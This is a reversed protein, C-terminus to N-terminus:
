SRRGGAVERRRHQVAAPRLPDSTQEGVGALMALSPLASGLQKLWDRIHAAPAGHFEARSLKDPTADGPRALRPTAKGGVYWVSVVRRESDTEAVFMHSTM